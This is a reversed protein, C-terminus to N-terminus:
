LAVCNQELRAILDRPRPLPDTLAHSSRSYDIGLGGGVNIVRPSFGSISTPAVTTTTTIISILLVM